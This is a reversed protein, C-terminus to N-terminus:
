HWREMAIVFAEASSHQNPRTMRQKLNTVATVIVMFQTIRVSM